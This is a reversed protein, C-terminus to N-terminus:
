TNGDVPMCGKNIVVAEETVGTPGSQELQAQDTDRNLDIGGSAGALYRVEVLEMGAAAWGM